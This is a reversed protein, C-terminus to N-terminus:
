FQGDGIASPNVPTYLRLEPAMLVSHPFKERNWQERHM